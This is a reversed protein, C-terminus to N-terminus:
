SKPAPHPPTFDIPMTATTEMPHGAKIKPLFRWQRVAALAAEGFAPDTAEVIVPDNVAGNPRIQLRLTARGPQKAKLQRAPYEPLPGVFLKPAGDPAHEVRKAIMRDLAAERENFRQQSHFTEQGGVFLHLQYKGEGLAGALPVALNFSRPHRPEMEGIEYVFLAKGYRDLDFELVMFVNELHYPSEFEAKFEFTHNVTGAGDTFGMYTTRAEMRRVAIFAPLFEDIHRLALPTNQAVSVLKGNDQVFPRSGRASVVLYMKEKHRAYLVNQARMSPALICFCAVLSVLYRPVGGLM